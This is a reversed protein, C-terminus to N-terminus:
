KDSELYEIILSNILNKGERSLGSLIGYSYESKIYSDIGVLQSYPDIVSIGINKAALKLQMNFSHVDSPPNNGEDPPLCTIVCVKANPLRSSIKNLINIYNKIMVAISPQGDIRRRELDKDGIQIFVYDPNLDFLSMELRHSLGHHISEFIDLYELGFTDPYITELTDLSIGRNFVSYGELDLDLLGCINTDGLLCIRKNNSKVFPLRSNESFYILLERFYNDPFNGGEAHMILYYPSAQHFNFHQELHEDWYSWSHTGTFERWVHPIELETLKEHLLRNDDIAHTYIDNEGCDFLLRVGTKKFREAQHYVSNAEWKEKNEEYEGLLKSIEWSKPHNTLNLIGSTSSASSYVDPHKLALLMAGHGGMSLGMIGRAERLPVTQFTNDVLKVLEDSIYKDYQSDEKLDSDIYWGYDGGDPFVLIMRYNDALNEVETRIIWSTNNGTVGHLIYLVPFPEDSQNRPPVYINFSVEKNLSTSFHTVTRIDKDASFSACAIYLIILFFATKKM